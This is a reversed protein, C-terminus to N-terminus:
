GGFPEVSVTRVGITNVVLVFTGIPLREKSWAVYTGHDGLEVEGPGDAGKTTTIVHGTCGVVTSTV